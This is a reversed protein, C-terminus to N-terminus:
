TVLSVRYIVYSDFYFLSAEDKKCSSTFFTYRTVLRNQTIGSKLNLTILCKM